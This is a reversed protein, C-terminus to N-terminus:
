SRWYALTNPNARQSERSSPQVHWDQPFKVGRKVKFCLLKVLRAKVCIVLICHRVKRINTWAFVISHWKKGSQTISDHTSPAQKWVYWWYTIVCKEFSWELSSITWNDEIPRGLHLSSLRLVWTQTYRNFSVVGTICNCLPHHGKTWTSSDQPHQSIKFCKQCDSQIFLSEIPSTKACIKLIHDHVKRIM